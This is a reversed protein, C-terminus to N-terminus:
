YLGKSVGTKLLRAFESAPLPKAFYYGQLQDCDKARLMELQEKTEVGEAITKLNLSKALSIIADVINEAGQNRVIKATFSQDIKLKNLAFRQLYSLSSYGTGFDDISLQIGTKALHQTIEIAEKANKMAMSETLELELFQPELQALSLADEVKELLNQQHFQAM